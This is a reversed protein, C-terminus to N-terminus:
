WLYLEPPFGSPAVMLSEGPQGAAFTCTSISPPLGEGTFNVGSLIYAEPNLEFLGSPTGVLLLSSQALSSALSAAGSGVDGDPCLPVHALGLICSAVEAEQPPMQGAGPARLESALEQRRLKIAEKAVDLTHILRFTEDDYFRIVGDVTGLCIRSLIPDLAISIFPSASVVSSVYALSGDILSWVRFTRDEGASILSCTDHKPLAM